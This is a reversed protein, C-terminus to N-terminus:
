HRDGVKIVILMLNILRIRQCFQALKVSSVSTGVKMKYSLAQISTLPMGIVQNIKTYRGANLAQRLGSDKPLCLVHELVSQLAEQQTVPPGDYSLPPPSAGADPSVIGGLGITVLGSESTVSAM